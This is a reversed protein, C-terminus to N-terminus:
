GAREDDRDSYDADNEDLRYAPLPTSASDTLGHAVANRMRRVTRSDSEIRELLTDTAKRNRKPDRKSRLLDLSQELRLVNRRIADGDRKSLHLARLEHTVQIVDAFSKVNPFRSALARAARSIRVLSRDLLLDRPFGQDRTERLAQVAPLVGRPLLTLELDLARAIEILNSAQLDVAGNEIKSLHSQPLGVRESLARQSLGKRERAEKLLTALPRLSHAAM